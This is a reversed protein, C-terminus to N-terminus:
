LENKRERRRNRGRVGWGEVFLERVEELGLGATEPYWGICFIWGLLCLGAYFGFAGSPTIRNMLSLYTSNILLNCSWNTATALSTGPGRVLPSFTLRLKHHDQYHCAGELSFLEGQQWPVNGLGTAYSTLARRNVGEFFLMKLRQSFTYTKIITVSRKVDECLAHLQYDVVEQDATKGREEKEEQTEEAQDTVKAGCVLALVKRAKEVKGWLVLIRPSEPMFILLVAQIFAPVAGLGVMYRWGGKTREFAAGIGYAVVQGGTILVVNLTVMRGRWKWARPSLEQIYVPAVCSAGGVGLGVLFRGAIMTGVNHSVSQIIAGAIFLVDSILLSPRRGTYDSSAGAALSGILAGLTTSSTILEEQLDSLKSPGLDSGITVLAGSIVGTDYGFLLGSISSLLVLLYITLTPRITFSGGTRPAISADDSLPSINFDIDKENKKSDIPYPTEETQRGQEENVDPNSNANRILHKFKVM